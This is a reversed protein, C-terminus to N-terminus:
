QLSMYLLYHPTSYQTVNVTFVYLLYHPTSYRTVNVTCVYLLYHTPSYQTVIVTCVYVGHLACYQVSDYKNYPCICCTNRLVTSLLTYQLPLYLMYHPTSYQTMNVTSMHSASYQITNITHVYAALLTPYQVSDHKSYLFICCTTCQTM